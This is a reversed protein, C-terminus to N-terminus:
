MILDKMQRNLPDIRSILKGRERLWRRIEPVNLIQESFKKAADEMAADAALGPWKAYDFGMQGPKAGEGTITWSAIPEGKANHFIFRYTIQATYVQTKLFPIHFDFEEIRPEIVGALEALEAELPPLSQVTDARKFVQAFTKGLVEVSAPGLPFVWTDGYRSGRREFTRFEESFYVGVNEGVVPAASSTAVTPNLPIAHSCASVLALLLIAFSV